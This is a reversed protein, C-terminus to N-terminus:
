SLRDSCAGASLYFLASTIYTTVVHNRASLRCTTATPNPFRAVRVRSFATEADNRRGLAILAHARRLIAKLYEPDNELVADVDNLALAHEGLSAFCAARNCLLLGSGPVSALTTPDDTNESRSDSGVRAAAVLADTFREKAQELNGSKFLNNGDQRGNRLLRLQTLLTETGQSNKTNAAGHLTEAFAVAFDLEGLKTILCGLRTKARTYGPDIAVAELCCELAQKFFARGQGLLAAAKNAHTPAVTRDIALSEDYAVVADAFKGKQYLAVGRAKAEAM